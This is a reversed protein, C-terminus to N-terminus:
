SIFTWAALLNWNWQFLLFSAVFLLGTLLEVFLYRPSIPQKCNACKGRLLIWSFIPINQWMPIQYKCSPCFSRRPKSTSLGPIPLRYIVVNLYSGVCCGFAFAFFYLLWVTQTPLNTLLYEKSQIM